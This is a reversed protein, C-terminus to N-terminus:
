NSEKKSYPFGASKLDYHKFWIKTDENNLM